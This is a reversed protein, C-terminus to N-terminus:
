PMRVRVHITQSTTEFNVFNLLIKNSKGKSGPLPALTATNVARFYGKRNALAAANQFTFALPAGHTAYALSLRRFTKLRSDETGVGPYVRTDEVRHTKPDFHFDLIALEEAPFFITHHMFHSTMGIHARMIRDYISAHPQASDFEKWDDHHDNAGTETNLWEKPWGDRLPGFVKLQETFGGAYSQGYSHGNTLDTLAEVEARQKPDNEWTKPWYTWGPAVIKLHAAGLKDKNARLWKAQAIERDKYGHFLGPENELEYFQFLGGTDQSSIACITRRLRSCLGM